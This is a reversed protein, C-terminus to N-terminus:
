SKVARCLFKRNWSDANILRGGVRKLDDEIDAFEIWRDVTLGTESLFKKTEDRGFVNHTENMEIEQMPSDFSWIKTLFDQLARKSIIINGKSNIQYNVKYYQYHEKFYKLLALTQEPLSVEVEGKGSDLHDVLIYRGSNKLIRRIELLIQSLETETGFLKVEHLMQSTIATDFYDDPLDMRDASCIRIKATPCIKDIDHLREPSEDVGWIESVHEAAIQLFQGWGCGIDVLRSCIGLNDLIIQYKVTQKEDWAKERARMFDAQAKQYLPNKSDTM